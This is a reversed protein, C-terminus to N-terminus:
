LTDPLNYQEKEANSVWFNKGNIMIRSYDSFSAMQSAAINCLENYSLLKIRKDFSLFNALTPTPYQCNDIVNNVSDIIRQDTFGKDRVREILMKFFEPTLSPFAAKVRAVSKVVTEQSLEGQYATLSYSGDDAKVLSRQAAKYPAIEAKESNTTTLSQSSKPM